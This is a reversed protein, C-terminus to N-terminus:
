GIVVIIRTVGFELAWSVLLNDPPRPLFVVASASMNFVIDEATWPRAINITSIAIVAMRIVAARVAVVTALLM